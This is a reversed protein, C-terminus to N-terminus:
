NLFSCYSCQFIGCVQIIGTIIEDLQDNSLESFLRGRPLEYAERYRRLTRSSVNLIRAMSEYSYGLEIMEEIQSAPIMYPPRGVRHQSATGTVPQQDRLLLVREEYHDFFTTLELLIRYTLQDEVDDQDQESSRALSCQFLSIYAELRTLLCDAVRLDETCRNIQLEEIFVSVDETCQALTANNLGAQHM